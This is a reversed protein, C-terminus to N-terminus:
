PRASAGASTRASAEAGVTLTLSKGSGTPTAAREAVAEGVTRRSRGDANPFVANVRDQGWRPSMGFERGTAAGSPPRGTRENESRVWAEARQQQEATSLERRDASNARQATTM